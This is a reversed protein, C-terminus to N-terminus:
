LGSPDDLGAAQYSSVAPPYGQGGSQYSTTSSPAGTLGASTGPGTGGVGLPEGDGYLRDDYPGAARGDDTTQALYEGHGGKVTADGIISSPDARLVLLIFAVLVLFVLCAVIYGYGLAKTSDMDSNLSSYCKSTWIIVALFYFFAAICTLILELLLCRRINNLQFSQIRWLQGTVRLIFIALLFLLILFAFVLMAVLGKGSSDCDAYGFDSMSESTSYSGLDLDVHAYYVNGSLGIQSVSILPAAFGVCCGIFAALLFLFQFVHLIKGQTTGARIAEM